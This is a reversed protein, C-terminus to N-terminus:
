NVSCTFGSTRLIYSSVELGGETRDTFQALLPVVFIDLAKLSCTEGTAGPLAIM